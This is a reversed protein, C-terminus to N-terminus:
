LFIISCITLCLFLRLGTHTWNFLSIFSLAFFFSVSPDPLRRLSDHLPGVQDDPLVVERLGQPLPCPSRLLHVLARRLDRQHAAQEVGQGPDDQADEGRSGSM